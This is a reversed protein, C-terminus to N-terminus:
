FLKEFPSIRDEANLYFTHECAPCRYNGPQDVKLNQFCVPCAVSHWGETDHSASQLLYAKADERLDFVPALQTLGVQNWSNKLDESLRCAAFRSVPNALITEKVCSLGELNWFKLELADLLILHPNAALLPNTRDRFAEGLSLDLKGQLNVILEKM